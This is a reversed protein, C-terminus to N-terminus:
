EDLPTNNKLTRSLNLKATEVSFWTHWQMAHGLSSLCLRHCDDAVPSEQSQSAALQSNSPLFLIETKGKTKESRTAKDIYIWSTSLPSDLESLISNTEGARTSAYRLRGSFPNTRTSDWGGGEERKKKMPLHLSWVISPCTIIPVVIVHPFLPFGVVVIGIFALHLPFVDM